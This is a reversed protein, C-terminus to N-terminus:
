NEETLAYCGLLEGTALKPLLSRKQDETGWDFICMSVLGVHVALFGRVSSCVRGIEEYVLAFSIYDLGRGGYEAPIPGALFGRKALEPILELPFRREVDIQSAIPRIKESAFARAELQIQKQESSLSFDM